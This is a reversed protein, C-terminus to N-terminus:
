KQRGLHFETRQSSSTKETNEMARTDISQSIIKKVMIRLSVDSTLKIYYVNRQTWVTKMAVKTLKDKSVQLKTKYCITFPM